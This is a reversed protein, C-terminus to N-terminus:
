FLPLQDTSGSERLSKRLMVVWRRTVGHARALDNASRTPNTLGAELIDAVLRASKSSRETAKGSPIDVDMGGFRDALWLTTELGIEGVLRSAAAHELTPITRRMGGVNAILRLRASLGLDAELEDIWWAEVM